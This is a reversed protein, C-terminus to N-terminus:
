RGIIQNYLVQPVSGSILCIEYGNALAQFYRSLLDSERTSLTYDKSHTRLFCQIDSFLQLYYSQPIEKNTKMECCITYYLVLCLHLKNRTSFIEVIRKKKLFSAISVKNRVILKSIVYAAQLDKFRLEESSVTERWLINWCERIKEHDDLTKFSPLVERESLVGNCAQIEEDIIMRIVSYCANALETKDLGSYITLNNNILDNWVKVIKKDRINNKSTLYHSIFYLKQEDDIVGDCIIAISITAFTFAGWLLNNFMIHHDELVMLIGISCVVAVAFLVICYYRYYDLVTKRIIRESENGSFLVKVIYKYMAIVAAVPGTAILLVPLSIINLYGYANQIWAYIENNIFIIHRLSYFIYLVVGLVCLFVSAYVSVKLLVLEGQKESKKKLMVVRM